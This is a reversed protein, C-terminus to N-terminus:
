IRRKTEFKYFKETNEDGMGIAYARPKERATPMGPRPVGTGMPLSKNDSSSTRETTAGNFINM